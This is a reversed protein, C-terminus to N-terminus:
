RTEPSSNLHKSHGAYPSLEWYVQTCNPRNSLIATDFTPTQPLSCYKEKSPEHWHSNGLTGTGVELLSPTNAYHSVTFAVIEPSPELM